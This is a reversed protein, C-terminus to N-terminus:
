TGPLARTDVKLQVGSIGLRRSETLLNHITIAAVAPTLGDPRINSVCNRNADTLGLVPARVLYASLSDIAGLGPREGILTLAFQAQFLQGVEDQLAVRAFPAVVIPALRWDDDLLKPVLAELVPVAQREAALASLGDSVVIVLRPAPTRTATERLADRGADSLRRGLDPRQLYTHRDRASTTAVVTAVGLQEIRRCVDAVDFSQRVADRARAHALNFSLIERTPLSGGARGLAIRATTLQTLEHWPDAIAIAPKTM